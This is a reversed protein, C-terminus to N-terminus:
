VTVRVVVIGSGGNFGNETSSAGGGGGTGTNAGGASSFNGGVARTISSGTISSALGAGPTSGSGAGGAGGGAGNLNGVGGSNGYSNSYLGVGGSAGRVSGSGSGGPRGSYATTNDVSFGSWGGGGGPCVITDIKSHTGDSAYSAFSTSGSGGSGVTVTYNGADLFLQTELYGGAGGASRTGGTRNTDGCKGGGGGGAVVLIDALGAQTITLTGSGTFTVYKYNTEGSSYTGTATNSFNAAGPEGASVWTSGSFVKLGPM